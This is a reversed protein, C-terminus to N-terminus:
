QVAGILPPHLWQMAGSDPPGLLAGLSEQLGDFHKCSFCINILNYYLLINLYEKKKSRKESNIKFSSTPVSSRNKLNLFDMIAGNLRREGEM